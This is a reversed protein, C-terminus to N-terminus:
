VTVPQWSQAGSSPRHELSPALLLVVLIELDAVPEPGLRYGEGLLRDNGEGAAPIGLAKVDIGHFGRLRHEAADDGTAPVDDALGEFLRHVFAEEAFPADAGRPEVLKAPYLRNSGAIGNMKLELDGM